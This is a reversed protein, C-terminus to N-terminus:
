GRLASGRRRGHIVAARRQAAAGRIHELGGEQQLLAAVVLAAVVVVDNRQGLAAGPGSAADVSHADSHVIPAGGEWALGGETVVRTNFVLVGRHAGSCTTGHM